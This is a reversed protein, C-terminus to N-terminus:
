VIVTPINTGVLEYKGSANVWLVEPVQLGPCNIRWAEKLETMVLGAAYSHAYGADRNCDAAFKDWGSLVDNKM